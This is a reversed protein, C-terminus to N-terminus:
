EKLSFLALHTRDFEKLGLKGLIPRSTEVDSETFAFKYGKQLAATLRANLLNKYLGKRQHEKDTVGLGLHVLGERPGDPFFRTLSFSVPQRNHEILHYIRTIGMKYNRDHSRLFGQHLSDVSPAFGEKFNRFIMEFIDQRDKLEEVPVERISYGDPLNTALQDVLEQTISVGCDSLEVLFHGGLAEITEEPIQLPDSQRTNILFQSVGMEKFKSIYRSAITKFDDLNDFELYDMFAQVTNDKEYSIIYQDTIEKIIEVSSTDLAINKWFERNHYM